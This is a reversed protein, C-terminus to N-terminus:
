MGLWYSRIFFFVAIASLLNGVYGSATIILDHSYERDYDKPDMAEGPGAPCFPGSLQLDQCLSENFLEDDTTSGNDASVKIFKTECIHTCNISVNSLRVNIWTSNKMLLNNIYVNTIHVMDWQVTDLWVWNYHGGSITM